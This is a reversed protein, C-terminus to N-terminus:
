NEIPILIQVQTGKPQQNDDTKDTITILVKNTKNHNLIQLRQENARTSFSNHQEKKLKKMEESKARGIGNDDIIVKLYKGDKSIHISLFKHGKRHLLGHKIANEAYPQILMSPIKILEEDLEHDTKIEFFFDDDFRMKELELYLTLAQIEESLAITEQESMELIMRTLKSFKGLYLSANRKDNTFIYAQITNLANYFFHPNMQAKISTLISKGLTQELAVKERLLIIQKSLLSIQWNYYAYAFIVIISVCLMIFWWKYWFPADITFTVHQPLVKNGVKFSIDYTGSALSRFPLSRSDTPLKKWVGNNISYYATAALASGFDLISYRITIDNQKYGFTANQFNTQDKGNVEFNNITFRTQSGKNDIFNTNYAILGKNSLLLLTSDQLLLDNVNAPTLNINLLQAKAHLLSVQYIFKSTMLVLNEGFQRAYKIDQADIGLSNNLLVLENNNKIEYLNGKTNLAFIRHHIIFIRSAYFPLNQFLLTSTGTPSICFFGQSTAAYIINNTTDYAIARGRGQIGQIQREKCAKNEIFSLNYLSDWPSHFTPDFDNRKRLACHGNAVFAYYNQDLPVIEKVANNTIQLNNFNLKPVFNTGSASFFVDDNQPNTYLYYLDSQQTNLRPLPRFTGNKNFITFQCNRNGILFGQSTNAIKTPLFDGMSYFQHQLSPMLFVGENTTSFWYNKQRDLIMGSVSKGQLYLTPKANPKNLTYVYSGQTSHVWFKGDIFDCGQIQKPEPIDLHQLTKLARDYYYMKGDANDRALLMVYAQSTFLLKYNSNNAFTIPLSKLNLGSDLQWLRNDKLFYFDNAVSATALLFNGAQTIPIQKKLKLDHISHVDIGEQQFNIVHKQAIGFPYYNFISEKPLIYMSDKFVYFLRGDFNEYWIRGKIDEKICSGSTSMQEVCKYTKFEFGDYRSLGADTAFWVFGKSDQFLNYVSNSPLGVAQNIAVSYPEQACAIKAM